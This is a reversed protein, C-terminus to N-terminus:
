HFLNLANHRLVFNHKLIDAWETYIRLSYVAGISEALNGKNKKLVNLFRGIASSFDYKIM